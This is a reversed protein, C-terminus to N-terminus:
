KNKQLFIIKNELKNCYKSLNNSSKVLIHIVSILKDIKKKYKKNKIKNDPPQQKKKRNKNFIDTLLLEAKDLIKEYDKIIEKLTGIRILGTINLNDIGKNILIKLKM